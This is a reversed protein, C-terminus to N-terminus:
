EAQGENPTKLEVLEVSDRTELSNVVSTLLVIGDSGIYYDDGDFEHEMAPMKGDSIASLAEDSMGVFIFERDASDYAVLKATLNTNGRGVKFVPDGEGAHTLVDRLPGYYAEVLDSEQTEFELKVKTLGRQAKPDVLRVSYNRGVQTYCVSRTSPIAGDISLVTKAQDKWQSWKAPGPEVQRAKAEIVHWATAADQGVLDALSGSKPDVKVLRSTGKRRKTLSGAHLLRSVGLVQDAVLAALTMGTWFSINAKETSDMGTYGTPRTLNASSFDMAMKVALSKYAALNVAHQPTPAGPSLFQMGFTQAKKLVRRKSAKLDKTGNLTNHIGTFGSM